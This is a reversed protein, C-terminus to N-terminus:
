FLCVFLLFGSALEESVLSRRVKYRAARLERGRSETRRIGHDAELEVVALNVNM